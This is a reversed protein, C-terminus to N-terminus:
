NYNDFKYSHHYQYQLEFVTVPSIGVLFQKSKFNIFSKGDVRQLIVHFNHKFLHLSEISGKVRTFNM